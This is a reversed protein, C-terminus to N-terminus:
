KYTYRRDLEALRKAGIDDGSSARVALKLNSPAM